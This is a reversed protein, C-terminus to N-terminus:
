RPTIEAEQELLVLVECLSACIRFALLATEPSPPKLDPVMVPRMGAAHAAQIGAESDELVLCASAPVHLQRAAALFIDPAPKGHQVQDGTVLADFRHLLGARVLKASVDERRASSAVATAAGRSSLWALLEVLGPKASIGERAITESVLEKKRRFAAQYPLNAGLSQQLILRTDEATRGLTALGVEDSLTYGHEALAQRWAVLALPETDLMLGDMDFLVASLRFTM